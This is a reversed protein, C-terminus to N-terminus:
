GALNSVKRGADRAEGTVSGSAIGIHLVDTRQVRSLTDVQAPTDDIRGGVLSPVDDVAAALRHGLTKGPQVHLAGLLRQALLHLEREHM